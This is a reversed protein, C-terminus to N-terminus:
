NSCWHTKKYGTTGIIDGRRLNIHQEEFNPTSLGVHDAQALVQLRTGQQCQM